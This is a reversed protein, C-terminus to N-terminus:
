RWDGSQADEWGKTTWARADYTFANKSNRLAYIHAITLSQSLGYGAGAMYVGVAYNASHIYAKFFTNTAKDRQFDYTGFQRLANGAPEIQQLPWQLSIKKRAAYVEQFNAHPPAMLKGTTSAPDDITSGDRREVVVADKPLDRVINVPGAADGESRGEVPPSAERRASVGQGSTWQGSARGNGAPVRPQNGDYKSVGPQDLSLGLEHALWRPAVGADILEAALALRYADDEDIAPLGSQALHIAALCKDGRRWHKAVGHLSRLAAQSIAQGYAVALLTRIRQEEGDICLGDDGAKALLTGAGLFLGEDTLKMRRFPARVGASPLIDDVQM